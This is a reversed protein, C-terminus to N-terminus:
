ARGEHQMENFIAEADDEYWCTMLHGDYGWLQYKGRVQCVGIFSEESRRKELWALFEDPTKKNAKMRQLFNGTAIIVLLTRIEACIKVGNEKELKSIAKELEMVATDLEQKM